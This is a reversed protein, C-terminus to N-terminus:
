ALDPLWFEEAFGGALTTLGLRFVLVAVEDDVEDAVERLGLDVAALALTDLTAATFGALALTELGWDLDFGFDFDGDVATLDTLPLDAVAFSVGAVAAAVVARGALPLCVALFDVRPVAEGALAAVALLLLESALFAVLLDWLLAALCGGASVSASALALFSTLLVAVDLDMALFLGSGEVVSGLTSCRM